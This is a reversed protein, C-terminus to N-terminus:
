FRAANKPRKPLWAPFAKAAADIAARTDDAGLDAVRAIEEGTAPDTVAFTKKSQVWAGDIFAATPFKSTIANM